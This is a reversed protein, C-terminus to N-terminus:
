HNAEIETPLQVMLNCKRLNCCSIQLVVCLFGARKLPPSCFFIHVFELQLAVSSIYLGRATAHNPPSLLFGCWPM